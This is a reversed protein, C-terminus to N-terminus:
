GMLAEGGAEIARYLRRRRGVGVFDRCESGIEFWLRGLGLRHDLRHALQLEVDCRNMGGHLELFCPAIQSVM